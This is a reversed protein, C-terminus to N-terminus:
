SPAVNTLLRVLGWACGDNQQMLWQLSDALGCAARPATVCEWPVTGGAIMLLRPLSGDCLVLVHNVISATHEVASMNLVIRSLTSLLVGRLRHDGGFADRLAKFVSRRLLQQASPIRLASMLASHHSRRPLRLAAKVATAQWAELRSIDSPGLLCLSCGYLTRLLNQGKRPLSAQARKSQNASM